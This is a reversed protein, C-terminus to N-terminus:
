VQSPQTCIDKYVKKLNGKETFIGANVLISRAETQNNKIDKRKQQLLKKVAEYESKSM